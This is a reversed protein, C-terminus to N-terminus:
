LLVLLMDFFRSTQEKTGNQINKSVGEDLLYFEELYRVIEMIDENLILLKTMGSGFIKRQIAADTAAAPTIEQHYNFEIIYKKRM